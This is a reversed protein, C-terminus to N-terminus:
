KKMDVWTLKEGTVPHKGASKRDGKLCKDINARPIGYKKTVDSMVDFYENLQPCFVGHKNAHNDSMKQRTEESRTIGTLTASIKAKTDDSLTKGINALRLKEKSEETFNPPRHGKLSESIREKHEDTLKRGIKAERMKIRSEESFVVGANGLQGGPQINYGYMRDMTRFMEILMVELACAREKNLNNAFVEHTFNEWGYKEIARGFVSSKDRTYESGNKGWRKELSTKTIGVYKKNNIKNIHIYVYYNNEIVVM